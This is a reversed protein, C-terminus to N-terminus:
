RNFGRADRAGVRPHEGARKRWEAGDSRWPAEAGHSVSFIEYVGRHGLQRDKQPGIRCQLSIRTHSQLTRRAIRRRPARRHGPRPAQAAAVAAGRRAHLPRRGSKKHRRRSAGARSSACMANYACMIRPCACPATGAGGGLVHAESEGSGDRWAWTGQSDPSPCGRTRRSSSARRRSCRRGPRRSPAARCTPCGTPSACAPRTTAPPRRRRSAGTRGLRAHSSLLRLIRPALSLHSLAPHLDRTDVCLRLLEAANEPRIYILLAEFVFLARSHPDGAAPPALADRLAARTEDAVSLNAPLQRLREIRPALQPRRQRLRGLLRQKQAMVHPLDVEAWSITLNAPSDLRLARADFGAGLIVVATAADVEAAAQLEAELVQDLYATRMAVNQHHLRPFLRALPRAVVRRTVPPLLDYALGGDAYGGRRRNGAIAKLWCVWLNVNTDTPTCDDWRHLLPMASQGVKWAAKWVLRPATRPPDVGLRAASEGLPPFDPRNKYVGRQQWARQFAPRTVSACACGTTLM